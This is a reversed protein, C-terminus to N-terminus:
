INKRLVEGQSKLCSLTLSIHSPSKFLRGHHKLSIYSPMIEKGIAFSPGTDEICLPIIFFATFSRERATLSNSRSKDRSGSLYQPPLFGKTQQSIQSVQFKITFRLPSKVQHAMFVSSHLIHTYKQRKSSQWVTMM